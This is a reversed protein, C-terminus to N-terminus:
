VGLEKLCTWSAKLIEVDSFFSMFHSKKECKKLVAYLVEDEGSGCM